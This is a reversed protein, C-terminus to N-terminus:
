NARLVQSAVSGDPNLVFMDAGRRVVTLCTETGAHIKNWKVCYGKEYPRWTGADNFNGVSVNASGDASLMLEALQGSSARAFVKKGVWTANIEDGPVVVDQAHATVCALAVVFGGVRYM